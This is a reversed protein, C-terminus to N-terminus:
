TLIPAIIIWLHSLWVPKGEFIKGVLFYPLGWKPHNFDGFHPKLIAETRESFTNKALHYLSEGIRIGNNRMEELCSLATIDDILEKKYALILLGITGMINLGSKEAVSRGKKEDILIRTAELENALVISECEGLDLRYKQILQQVFQQNHVPIIELFSSIRVAEAESFYKPNTTLEDFVAQSIIV